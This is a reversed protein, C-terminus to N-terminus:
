PYNRSYPLRLTNAVSEGAPMSKTSGAEDASEFNSGVAIAIQHEYALNISPQLVKGAGFQRHSHAM